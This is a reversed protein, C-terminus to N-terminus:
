FRTSRFRYIKPVSLFILPNPMFLHQLRRPSRSKIICFNVTIKVDRWLRSIEHGHRGRRFSFQRGAQSTSVVHDVVLAGVVGDTETRLFGFLLPEPSICAPGARSLHSGNSLGQMVTRSEATHVCFTVDIMNSIIRLQAHFIAVAECHTSEATRVIRGTSSRIFGKVLNNASMDTIGTGIAYSLNILSWHGHAHITNPITPSHRAPGTIWTRQLCMMEGDDRAALYMSLTLCSTRGPPRRIM